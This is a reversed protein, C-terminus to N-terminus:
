YIKEIHQLYDFKVPTFDPDKKFQSILHPNSILNRGFAILEAEKNKLLENAVELQQVGGCVILPKQTHERILQHLSQKAGFMPATAKLESSHFVDVGLRDLKEVLSAINYKDENYQMYSNDVMHISLRYSLTQESDLAKRVSRVVDEIFKFQPSASYEDDRQNTDAHCFQHLLYGHAGHLEVGDFGALAAMKTSNEFDSTIREIEDKQLEQPVEYPSGTQFNVVMGDVKPRWFSTGNFTPIASPALVKAGTLEKVSLRGPHFLQVWIKAGAEHVKDVLEKWKTAQEETHLQAGNRYGISDSSNIACSEM